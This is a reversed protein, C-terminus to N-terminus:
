ADGSAGGGGSDGGGFDFGGGGGGGSGWDGGSSYYGGSGGGSDNSAIFIVIIVFIIVLVLIVWWPMGGPDTSATKEPHEKADRVIKEIHRTGDAIGGSWDEQHTKKAIDDTVIHKAVIDPIYSEAHYGTQIRLKREQRAVLLLVGNNEGKKGIGWSVFLDQAYREVSEGELTQVTVVAVEWTTDAELSKLENELAEREAPVLLHASDTVFGSHDPFTVASASGGFLLAAVALLLPLVRRM